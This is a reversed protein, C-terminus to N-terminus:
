LKGGGSRTEQGGANAERASSTIHAIRVKTNSELIQAAMEMIMQHKATGEKIKAEVLNKKLDQLLKRGEIEIEAELEASWQERKNELEMTKIKIDTESKLQAVQLSSDQGKAQEAEAVREDAGPELTKIFKDGNDPDILRFMESILFSMGQVDFLEGFQPMEYMETMLSFIQLKRQMQEDITDLSRGLNVKIDVKDDWTSPDVVVPGEPSNIVINTDSNEIVLKIITRAARAFGNDGMSNAISSIAVRGKQHAMNLGSASRAVNPADDNAGSTAPGLGIALKRDATIGPIVESLKNVIDNSISPVAAVVDGPLGEVYHIQGAARKQLFSDRKSPPVRRADVLVAPKLDLRIGEIFARNFWTLLETDQRLLDDLSKGIARNPIPICSAGAFPNDEVETIHIISEYGVRVVNLLKAEGLETQFWLYEDSLVMLDGRNQDNDSTSGHDQRHRENYSAANSAETNLSTTNEGNGATGDISLGLKKAQRMIIDKRRPYRRVINSVRMEQSRAIYAPGRPHQQDFTITEDTIVMEESPVNDIVIRDPMSKMMKAIIQIGEPNSASPPVQKIEHSLVKFRPNKEMILFASYPIKYTLQIPPVAYRRIDLVAIPYLLASKVFESIASRANESGFLYHNAVGAMERAAEAARVPDSDSAEASPVCDVINPTRRIGDMIIAFFGDICEAQLQSVYKSSGGRESAQKGIGSAEDTAGTSEEAIYRRTAEACRRNLSNDTTNLGDTRNYVRLEVLLRKLQKKDLKVESVGKPPLEPNGADDAM